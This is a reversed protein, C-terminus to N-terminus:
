WPKFITPPSSRRTIPGNARSCIRYRSELYRDDILLALGRDKESRIVRGVAQMVRNMGPYAYSFSYGDNQRRSFFDKILDREFSLQPLGVGVIISGILRDEILDIGESFPGGLVVFGVTTHEPAPVFQNLFREQDALTMEQEQVLIEVTGGTKMHSRVDNMYKYSPFFVLYNGIKGQIALEVYLAIEDLTEARSKFRTSVKPAVV